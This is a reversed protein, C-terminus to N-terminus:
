RRRRFHNLLTATGVIKKPEGDVRPTLMKLAERKDEELEKDAADDKKGQAQRCMRAVEDELIPLLEFPLQPVCSEGAICVYDGAALGSPLSAFTITTGSVGTIAQDIARWDSGQNGVVFDVLLGNAFTTPTSTITVQNLSTNISEILGCATTAVLKNPRRFHKLRLTDQTADPTPNLVVNTGELYFGLRGSETSYINEPELRPLSTESTGEVLVVDRLKSGIARQPIAYEAQNATIALDYTKVWYEERTSLVLPILKKHMARNAFRLFDATAFLNQSSPISAIAKVAEVLDSTTYAAM